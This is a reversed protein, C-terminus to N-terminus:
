RKETSSKLLPTTPRNSDRPVGHLIGLSTNNAKLWIHAHQQQRAVVITEAREIRSGPFRVVL